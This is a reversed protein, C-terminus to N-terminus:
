SATFRSLRFMEIQDAYKAGSDVALDTMIEGVISAFKFGHGSFGAALYVDEAQPHADLIFHEDPSNTFMCTKLAMTPGNADPFYRRIGERLVEEDEPHVDRDVRDPDVNQHLHHYKGIKFGPVGYVPFGYFRGESAEMNFIPFAGLRFLDPRIPQAWLVVQREPIALKALGPCLTSAWPGATIVLKRGFYSGRTTRVVVGPNSPTWGLVAERAHIEAGHAQAAMVYNAICREPLLFGGDPQYVAEMDKALCYGPFQKRLSDADLHQHPLCYRECTLLSGRVTPTDKGGADIGGTIIMLREGVLNELERWLTYARRLLPVYAPGEAYALRIIRTSGHSSGFDHPIDFQELGLVKQGRRALHYTSASGMGGVGIVIVDFHQM